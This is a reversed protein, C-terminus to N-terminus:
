FNYDFMLYMSEAAFRGTFSDESSRFADSEWRYGLSCSLANDTVCQFGVEANWSRDSMKIKQIQYNIGEGEITYYLNQSAADYNNIGYELHIFPMFLAHPNTFKYSIDAGISGRTERVIMQEFTLARNAGIESFQNFNTEVANFKAYQSIIWNNSKNASNENMAFSFDSGRLSLSVFQQTARREGLFLDKSDIRSTEFDLRSKGLYFELYSFQYFPLKIKNLMIQGYTSISYNSFELSSGSQGMDADGDSAGLALGFLGGISEFQRDIGIFFSKQNQEPTSKSSPTGVNIDVDTWLSWDGILPESDTSWSVDSSWSLDDARSLLDKPTAASKNAIRLQSNDICNRVPTTRFDKQVPDDDTTKYTYIINCGLGNITGSLSSSVVKNIDVCTTRFQKKAQGSEDTKFTYIIKCDLETNPDLLIVTVSKFVDAVTVVWNKSLLHTKELIGSIKLAEKIGSTNVIFIGDVFTYDTPKTTNGSQDTATVAFGQGEPLTLSFDVILDLSAIPQSFTNTENFDFKSSRATPEELGVSEIDPNIPLYSPLRKLTELASDLSENNVDVKFSQHSTKRSGKNRELWSIRRQLVSLNQNAWQSSVSTMTQSLSIVDEILTPDPLIDNADLITVIWDEADSNGDADTVTITLAYTNNTDSDAPSEYDHAAMTVVGTSSNISFVAADTGSIAYSVSSIDKSALSPTISTYATNENVTANSIPNISLSVSETVDVVTVVWDEADTNGDIDTVTITLAYTNNTDSDVPSEFDRAMMTVVGTSSNISFDAADAGGITYTIDGVPSGSISPTVSTYAANENITLDAIANITFSVSENVNAVTVVWDEADSNADADTVTITLAYTNNTNSDVPSEYNRAVMTVVGTSSNISFDAADTGSIAYSVQGACCSGIPLGSPSISPTVSTYAANENITVDAIANITFERVEIVDAVYVVWPEADMTGASDTANIKINYSNNTNSDVPNEYNRAVMTVVGTSSNISFDAGDGWDEITWAVSGVPTGSLSPTVSTYAANENITVNAIANIVIPDSSAKTIVRIYDGKQGNAVGLRLTRKDSGISVWDGSTTSSSTSSNYFTLSELGRKNYGSSSSSSYSAGSKSINTWAVTKAPAHWFGLIENDFVIQGKKATRDSNSHNDNMFVLYSNAPTNGFHISSASGSPVKFDSSFTSSCNTSQGGQCIDTQEPTIVFDYGSSSRQGSSSDSRARFNSASTKIEVYSNVSAIGTANVALPILSVLILIVAIFNCRNSFITRQM